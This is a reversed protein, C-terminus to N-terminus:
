AVCDMHFEFACGKLNNEPIKSLNFGVLSIGYMLLETSRKSDQFYPYHQIGRIYQARPARPLHLHADGFHVRLIIGDDVPM